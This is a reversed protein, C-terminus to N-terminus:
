ENAVEQAGVPLEIAPLHIDIVTGSTQGTLLPPYVEAESPAPGIPVRLTLSIAGEDDCVVDSSLHPSDVADRPLSSGPEMFGFDFREGNIILVSGQVSVTFDVPEIGAPRQTRQTINFM